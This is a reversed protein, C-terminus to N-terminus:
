GLMITDAARVSSHQRPVVLELTGDRLHDLIHLLRSDISLQLGIIDGFSQRLHNGINQFNQITVHHSGSQEGYQDIMWNQADLILHILKSTADTDLSTTPSIKNEIVQTNHILRNTSIYQASLYIQPTGGYWVLTGKLQIVTQEDGTYVQVQLHEHKIFLDVNGRINSNYYGIANVAM